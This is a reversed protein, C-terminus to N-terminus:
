VQESRHRGAGGADAPLAPLRAAFDWALDAIREQARWFPESAEGFARLREAAWRGDGYRVVTEGPLHVIMAPDVPTADLGVGLSAFVRRHIGRPGFGGVLTAGVDFRYGGRQYFSACGGVLNHRELVAVSLGARAALSAATLGSVGGGIVV